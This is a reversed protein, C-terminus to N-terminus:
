IPLFHSFRIIKLMSGQYNKVIAFMQQLAIIDKRVLLYLRPRTIADERGYTRTPTPLSPMSRM